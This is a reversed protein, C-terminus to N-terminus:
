LFPVWSLVVVERLPFCHSLWDWAAHAGKTTGPSGVARLLLMQNMKRFLSSHAATIDGCYFPCIAGAQGTELLSHLM